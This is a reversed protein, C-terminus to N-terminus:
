RDTLLGRESAKHETEFQDKSNPDIHITLQTAGMLYALGNM